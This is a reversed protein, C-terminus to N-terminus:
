LAVCAVVHLKHKSVSHGARLRRILMLPRPRQPASQLLRAPRMGVEPDPFHDLKELVFTGVLLLAGVSGAM